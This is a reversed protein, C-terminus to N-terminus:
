SVPVAESAPRQARKGGKLWRYWGPKAAEKRLGWVTGKCVAEKISAAVRGGVFLNVPTDDRRALQVTAYKRGISICQGTFGQDVVAPPTGAIRSLVTNAAQAGLPLAAQCSMRLPRGSPAAADGAAVIRPDDVSTLTEDTLLRGMPDTHLGSRAALQPVGFGATWVTLASPLVAGAPQSSDLVVEEARVERVTAAELVDVGLRHLWKAVSRRGPRSLSPGLTGGCVLHVRRGQEALESATEIGTLGAGVVVVPAAPHLEDLATRLREAQEFEAIPYAFETAGPVAEPVAGTSGVAYVLYDYDLVTGSTLEVTGAATDIREANDVLLRVGEGLLTGYDVAANGSGAVLQHLRIREVFVPRPNVVTIDVTDANLRLHNAALTGAYGGGIVVIHTRQVPM